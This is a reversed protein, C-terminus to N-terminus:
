GDNRCRYAVARCNDIILVDFLERTAREYAQKAIQNAQLEPQTPYCAAKTQGCLVALQEIAAPRHIDCSVMAVMKKQKELYRALKVSTTTKGVGQLGLMLIVVPPKAKLKLEINEDAILAILEDKILDILIQGLNADKQIHIDSAKSRIAECFGDVVSLAVDAEILATKIEALAGDIHDKSLYKYGQLRNVITSFQNSLQELM